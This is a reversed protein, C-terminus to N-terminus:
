LPEGRRIKEWAEDLSYEVPDNEAEALEEETPEPPSVMGAYISPEFYGVIRGEPDCIEVRNKVGRLKELAAGDLPLKVVILGGDAEPIGSGTYGENQPRILAGRVPSRLADPRDQ